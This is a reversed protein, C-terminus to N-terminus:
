VCLPLRSHFSVLASPQQQQKGAMIITQYKNVITVKPGWRGSLPCHKVSLYQLCLYHMCTYLSPPECLQLHSCTYRSGGDRRLWTTQQTHECSFVSRVSSLQRNRRHTMFCASFNWVSSTIERCNGRLDRRADVCESRGRSPTHLVRDSGTHIVCHYRAWDIRRCLIKRDTKMLPTSTIPLLLNPLGARAPPESPVPQLTLQCHSYNAVPSLKDSPLFQFGIKSDTQFCEMWNRLPPM